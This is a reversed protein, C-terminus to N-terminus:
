TADKENLVYLVLDGQFDSRHYDWMAAALFGNQALYDNVSFRKPRPWFNQPDHLLFVLRKDDLFILKPRLRRIDEALEDLFRNEDPTATLAGRYPFQGDRYVADEYLMPLPFSWLYRSGPRRNLQLLTPYVVELRSIVLIPDGERSLEAIARPVGPDKVLRDRFRPANAQTGLNLAWLGLLVFTTALANRASVFSGLRQFIHRPALWLALIGLIAALAPTLHYTWGKHQLVYSLAAALGMATLPAALQPARGSGRPPRLLAALLLACAIWFAPNLFVVTYPLNMAAYGKAVFPLWRFLFAARVPPLLFLFHVAYGLGAVVFALAEPAVLPRIKRHTCLWVFEPAAAVLLFYPKLSVLVGALAGWALARRWILPRGQWRSFRLAFFPMYALVFLHERQGFFLNLLLQLSFWAYAVSLMEAYVVEGPDFAELLIRRFCLTSIVAFLWVSLLFTTIVHWPLHRALAASIASLYMILPPNLDIFDVYPLKGELLLQGSQLYMAADHNLQLPGSFICLLALAFINALILPWVHTPRTAVAAPAPGNM